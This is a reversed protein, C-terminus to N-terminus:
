KLSVYLTVTARKIGYAYWHTTFQYEGVPFPLVISLHNNLYETPVKDVILDHPNSKENKLFKCADATVNYLFPKYGNTTRKLMAFNVQLL